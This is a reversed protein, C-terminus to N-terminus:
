RVRQTNNLTLQLKQHLASCHDLVSLFSKGDPNTNHRDLANMCNNKEAEIEKHHEVPVHKNVEEVSETMMKSKRRSMLLNYLWVGMTYLGVIILVTSLIAWLPNRRVSQEAKQRLSGDAANDKKDGNDQDNREQDNKDCEHNKIITSSKNVMEFDSPTRKTPMYMNEDDYPDYAPTRQANYVSM